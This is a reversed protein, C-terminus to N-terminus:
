QSLLSKKLYILIGKVSLNFSFFQSPFSKLEPIKGLFKQFIESEDLNPNEEIIEAISRNWLDHKEKLKEYFDESGNLKYSGCHTFNIRKPRLSKILDISEKALEKDYDSPPSLVFNPLNKYKSGLADGSFVSESKADYYVVHHKAHGPTYYVRLRTEGLDLEDGSSIPVIMDESSVARIEGVVSYKDGYAKRVSANLKSPDILHKVGKEHVFIKLDPNENALNGAGGAHDIHVHTLALFDIDKPTLSVQKLGSILKGTEAPIGSEILITKKDRIIWCTRIDNIIIGQIRSDVKEVSVM